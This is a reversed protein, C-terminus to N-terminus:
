KKLEANATIANELISLYSRARQVADPFAAFRERGAHQLKNYQTRDQTLSIIADAIQAADEPNFYIAADKCISRAFGLDSTLIPKEMVMAEPYSASFCELFTPLFMIDCEAYLSPCEAGPVPGTNYVYERYKAPIVQEYNENKLTLVFRVNRIGKDWLRDIVRPIIELNKHAYYMSVTLLRIEGATKDPLRRPHPVPNLYQTGCTNSVTHVATKGFIKGFRASADETETVYVDADRKTFFVQVYKALNFRMKQSRSMKKLFVSELYIYHPIAYGMVHLAKPRWYSPGFVTFVADPAIERELPKLYGGLKYWPMRPIDYFTFNDGFATKDIQLLANPGAFVHYENEPFHRCENIFSLAVQLGGGGLNNSANIILRM